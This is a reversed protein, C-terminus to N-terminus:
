AVYDFDFDAGLFVGSPFTYVAIEAQTVRGGAIADLAAKVSVTAAGTGDLYAALKDRASRDSVKGVLVTVKFTARDTGRGHTHDYTLLEPLAVVAAPPSVNDPIFDFVRLGTVGALAAGITDMATNVNMAM